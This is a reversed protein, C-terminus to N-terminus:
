LIIHLYIIFVFSKSYSRLHYNNAAGQLEKLIILILLLSQKILYIEYFHEFIILMIFRLFNILTM